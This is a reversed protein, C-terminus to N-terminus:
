GIKEEIFLKYFILMQSIIKYLSIIINLLIISIILSINIDKISSNNKITIIIKSPIYNM